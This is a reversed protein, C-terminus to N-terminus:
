LLVGYKMFRFNRYRMERAKAEKSDCDICINKNEKSAEKFEWSCIICIQKEKYNKLNEKPPINITKTESLNFQTELIIPQKINTPNTTPNTPKNSNMQCNIYYFINFIVKTQILCLISKYYVSDTTTINSLWFAM